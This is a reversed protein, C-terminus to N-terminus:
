VRLENVYVCGQWPLSISMAEKMNEYPNTKIKNHKQKTKM